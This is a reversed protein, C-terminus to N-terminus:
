DRARSKKRLRDTCDPPAAFVRKLVGLGAQLRRRSLPDLPALVDALHAEASRAVRELAARGAPTVEVRVIRRDNTEITDLRGDGRTARSWLGSPAHAPMAGPPMRRVWGRQVLATISNSMTPLSVGRLGALETLTRPQENLMMLLPFHAPAPFEGASRLEAAVTRMVLPMITLIERATERAQVRTM